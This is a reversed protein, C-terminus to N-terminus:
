ERAPIEPGRYRGLVLYGGASQLVPMRCHPTAGRWVASPRIRTARLIRQTHENKLASILAPV